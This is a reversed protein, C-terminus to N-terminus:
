FNWFHYNKPSSTLTSGLRTPSLFCSRIKQCFKLFWFTFLTPSSNSYRDYTLGNRQSGSLVRRDHPVVVVHIQFFRCFRTTLFRRAVPGLFYALATAKRRWADDSEALGLSLCPYTGSQRKRRNRRFSQRKAAQCPTGCAHTHVMAYISTSM